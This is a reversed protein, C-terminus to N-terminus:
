NLAGKIEQYEPGKKWEEQALLQERTMDVSIRDHQMRLRNLPLVVEKPNDEVDLVVFIQNGKRVVSEIEAIEKGDSGYIDRDKLDSSTMRALAPDLQGDAAVAPPPATPPTAPTTSQAFATGGALLAALGCATVFSKM